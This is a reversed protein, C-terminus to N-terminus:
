LSLVLTSRVKTIVVPLVGCREQFLLEELDADRTRTFQVFTMRQDGIRRITFQRRCDVSVVTEVITGPDPTLRRTRSLFPSPEQRTTHSQPSDSRLLHDYKSSHHSLTASEPVIFHLQAHLQQSVLQDTMGVIVILNKRQWSGNVGVDDSTVCELRPLFSGGGDARRCIDQDRSAM